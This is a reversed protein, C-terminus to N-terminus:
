IYTPLTRGRGCSRKQSFFLFFFYSLPFSCIIFLKFCCALFCCAQSFLYSGVKRQFLESIMVLKQFFTYVNSPYISHFTKGFVWFLSPHICLNIFSCIKSVSPQSFYLSHIILGLMVHGYFTQCKLTQMPAHMVLKAYFKWIMMTANTDHFYHPVNGKIRSGFRVRVYITDPRAVLMSGFDWNVMFRARLLFCFFPSLFKGILLTPSLLFLFNGILSHSFASFFLPFSLERDFSRFFFLLFICFSRKSWVIDSCYLNTVLFVHFSLFGRGLTTRERQNGVL